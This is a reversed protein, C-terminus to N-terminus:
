MYEELDELPADFDPAMHYERNAACGKVLPRKEPEIPRLEAVRRGRRTVFFREGLEVRQIIESLHTKAEFIGIEHESM